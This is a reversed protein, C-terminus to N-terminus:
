SFTRSIVVNDYRSILPLSTGPSFEVYAEDIMLVIQKESTYECLKELEEVSKHDGFPSNPNALIALSTNDDISQIMRDISFINDEGYEVKKFNTNYCDSYVFYMPFCPFSSVVSTTDNSTAHILSEICAESGAALFINEIKVGNFKAIRSRLDDYDEHSPYTIFDEQTLTKLFREFLDHSYNISREAMDFRCNEAKNKRYPRRRDIKGIWENMKKKWAKLRTNQARM